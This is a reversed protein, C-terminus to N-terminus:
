NLTGLQNVPWIRFVAQGVVEGKEVFGVTDARSDRSHPRNDGMVFYKGQPVQWINQGYSNTELETYDELVEDNIYVKGNKIEVTEGPLGIVRKILLKNQSVDKFVVIDGRDPTGVIYNMKSIVLMQGEQLTPEMSIQNVIAMQFVFTRLIFAILFASIIWKLWSFFDEKKRDKEQKEMDKDVNINIDEM